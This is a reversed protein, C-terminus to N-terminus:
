GRACPPASGRPMRRTDSRAGAGPRTTRLSASRTTAAPSPPAPTSVPPPRARWCDPATGTMPASWEPHLGLVALLTPTVRPVRPVSASTVETRM